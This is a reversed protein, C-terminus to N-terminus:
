RCTDRGIDDRHGLARFRWAYRDAGLALRLVGHARIRRQSGRLARGFPYPRLGGTGVVFQRTGDSAGRGGASLKAFREYQHEHGTLVVDVGNRVMTRWWAGVRRDSGHMTGSSWRPRHWYALECVSGDTRLEERAWALQKPRFRESNMSLVHWTGLDFADYGAPGHAADGFYRFYGRARRTEYDHNGPSPFTRGLFRGWTPDYSRRFARVSGREYQNDGLTLIADPDIDALLRTTKRQARCPAGPCAIDGAAAVVVPAAHATGGSTGALLLALPVLLRRSRV